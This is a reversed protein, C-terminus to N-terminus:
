KTYKLHFTLTLLQIEKIKQQIAFFLKINFLSYFFKSRKTTDKRHFLKYKSTNCITHVTYKLDSM